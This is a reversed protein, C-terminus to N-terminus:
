STLTLQEAQAAEVHEILALEVPLSAIFTTGMRAEAELLRLLLKSHIRPPATQAHRKAADQEVETLEGLVEPAFSPAARAILVARVLRLFLTLLVKMDTGQENLRRLVGLATDLNNESVADLLAVLESARPAGTISEVEEVSIRKDCSGAIVKQLIGLTDRFSGDALLAILEASAPELAYGEKKAVKLVMDRLVALTPKNFTFAQCRSVITDPLKEKETTALIFIVHKPPEELTKLLANFAEKTLMHVEDIIYVKYPSEFPMAHVEERLTRIDDVGRNSAADIEHLDRDTTGLERALIRALSTKGTGRSGSFLYAHAVNEEKLGGELAKVVHEQGLVDKFAAPRYKRYLVQDSM